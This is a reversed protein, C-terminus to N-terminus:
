HIFSTETKLFLHSRLQQNVAWLSLAPKRAETSIQMCSGSGAESGTRCSVQAQLPCLLGLAVWPPSLLVSIEVVERLGDTQGYLIESLYTITTGAEDSKRVMSRDELM